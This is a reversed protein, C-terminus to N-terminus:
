LPESHQWRSDSRLSLDSRVRHRAPAGQVQGRIQGPPSLKRQHTQRAMRLCHRSGRRRLRQPRLSQQPLLPPPLGCRIRHSSRSRWSEYVKLRKTSLVQPTEEKQTRTQFVGDNKCMM